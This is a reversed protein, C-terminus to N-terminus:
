AFCLALATGVICGGHALLRHRFLRGKAAAAEQFHPTGAFTTERGHPLHTAGKRDRSRNGALFADTHFLHVLRVLAVKRHLLYGKATQLGLRAVLQHLFRLQQLLKRLAGAVLTIDQPVKAM